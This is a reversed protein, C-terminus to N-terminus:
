IHILSLDVVLAAVTVLAVGGRVMVVPGRSVAPHVVKATAIYVWMYSSSCGCLCVAAALVPVALIVVLVVVVNAEVAPIQSRFRGARRRRAGELGPLRGPQAAVAAAPPLLLLYLLLLRRLVLM